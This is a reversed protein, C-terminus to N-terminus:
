FMDIVAAMMVKEGGGEFLCFFALKKLLFLLGAVFVSV